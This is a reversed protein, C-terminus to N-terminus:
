NDDPLQEPVEVGFLGHRIVINTGTLRFPEADSPHVIHGSHDYYGFGDVSNGVAKNGGEDIYILQMPHERANRMIAKSVAEPNPTKEFDNM